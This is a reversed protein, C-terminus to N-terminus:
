QGDATQILVHDGGCKFNVCYTDKLLEELPISKHPVDYTLADGCAHQGFNNCGFTFFGEQKTVGSKFLRFNGQYTKVM